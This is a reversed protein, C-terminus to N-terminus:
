NADNMLKRLLLKEMMFSDKPFNGEVSEINKQTKYLFEKYSTTNTNMPRHALSLNIKKAIKIREKTSEEFYADSFKEWIYQLAMENPHILDDKYFRYDRLDDMMIEFSPFYDVKDYQMAVDCLNSILRSKSINNEVIGDKTHRVPSITTIIQANPNIDFILNFCNKISSKIQTDTLLYKQFNPNPVKHCNAVFLGLEKLKYVWSTGFTLIFCDANQMFNNAMELESNVKELTAKMTTQSFSSHHDWSFHLDKYKFIEDQSYFTLSHIRALANEIALPHFLTGFPNLLVQFKSEELKEGISDVFCSGIGLIKQSHSIKRDSEPLILETRFQM